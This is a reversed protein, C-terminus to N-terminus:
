PKCIDVSVTDMYDTSASLTVVARMSVILTSLANM